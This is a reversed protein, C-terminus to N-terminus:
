ILCGNEDCKDSISNEPSQTQEQQHADNSEYLLESILMGVQMDDLRGFHNLRLQGNKDILILTPTGNMNYSQMTRPINGSATPLDVAVPFNIRYEHIFAKLADETMVDHHEFVTHLGIVKVNKNSFTEAILKAQPIGHSVCGPCLMQFAHLVIVSGKMTSLSLPEPANFWISTELEPAKEYQSKTTM